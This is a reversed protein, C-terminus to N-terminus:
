YPHLPCPSTLIGIVNFSWHAFNYKYTDFPRVSSKWSMGTSWAQFDILFLVIQELIIILKVISEYVHM